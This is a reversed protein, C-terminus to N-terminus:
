NVLKKTSRIIDALRNRISVETINAAQAVTKQTFNEENELAAM